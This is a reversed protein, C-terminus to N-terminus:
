LEGGFLDTEKGFVDPLFEDMLVENGYLKGLGLSQSFKYADIVREVAKDIKPQLLDFFTLQSM